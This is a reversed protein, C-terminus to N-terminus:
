IEGTVMISIEGPIPPALTDLLVFSFERAESRNGADDIDVLQGVVPANDAGSMSESTIASGPLQSVVPDSEGVKVTLERSVVDSAGMPPLNLVFNLMSGDESIVRIYVMGPRRLRLIKLISNTSEVLEILLRIVKTTWFM